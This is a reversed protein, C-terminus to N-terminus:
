MRHSHAGLLTEPFSATQEPNQLSYTCLLPVSYADIVDNWLEEMRLAAPLNPGWLLSVMEGYLRIRGSPANLKATNIINGVINRFSSSHPAGDIVLKSLMEMVDLMVLRGELKLKAVDFGESELHRRVAECHEPTAILVVGEDKGLGSAAFTSVADAILTDDTCPYVIHCCPHPDALISATKATMHEERLVKIAM